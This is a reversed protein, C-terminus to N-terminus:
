AKQPREFPESGGGDVPDTQAVVTVDEGGQLALSRRSNETIVRAKVAAEPCAKIQRYDVVILTLAESPEDVRDTETETM